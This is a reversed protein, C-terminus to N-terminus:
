PQPTRAPQELQELARMQADFQRKLQEMQEKYIQLQKNTDSVVLRINGAVSRLRIVQGGGNLAGAVRVMREGRVSDDYSEKLRFAPDVIVHHEDGMQIRADITVPIERPLYVVIDGDNSELECPSPGKPPAVFWATIGGALASARVSSDVQTLYISGGATQLNTPGSLRVVRIGGGGTKARVLGSAEGVEIQGGATDAFLDSGSQQLTINGGGTDLRAIGEVSGVHIHGGTTRLTANGAISGTTIHGGGTIATLDGEVNHLWIHGGSASEVRAPGAINGATINGGSTFLIARGGIDSTEINGGGTSVDVNYNKPILVRITVWLRGTCEEEDTTIGKIFVGDPLARVSIRFEKLLEKAGKQNADTELEVSYEIRNPEGTQVEVNGLQTSLRLRGGDHTGLSGTLQSTARPGISRHPAATKAAAPQPGCLLLVAVLISAASLTTSSEALHTTQLRPRSRPACPM